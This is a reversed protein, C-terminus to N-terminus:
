IYLLILFDLIFVQNHNVILLLIIDMKIIGVWRKRKNNGEGVRVDCVESRGDRRSARDFMMKFGVVKKLGEWWLSIEYYIM